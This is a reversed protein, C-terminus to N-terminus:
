SESQLQGRPIKTSSIIRKIILLNVENKASIPSKGLEILM